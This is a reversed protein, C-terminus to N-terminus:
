RFDLGMGIALISLARAGILYSSPFVLNVFSDPIIKIPLIFLVAYKITKKSYPEGNPNSSHKELAVSYPFLAGVKKINLHVVFLSYKNLVSLNFFHEYKQVSRLGAEM